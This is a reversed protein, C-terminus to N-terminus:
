IYLAQSLSYAAMSPNNIQIYEFEYIVKGTENYIRLINGHDDCQVRHIASEPADDNMKMTKTYGTPFGKSDFEWEYDAEWKNIMSGLDTMGSEHTPLGNEDFDITNNDIATNVIRSKITGSTYYTWTTDALGDGAQSTNKRSIALGDEITYEYNATASGGVNTTTTTLPYGDPTFDSCELVSESPNDPDDTTYFKLTTRITNGRDDYENISEQSKEGSESYVTYCSTVWISGTGAKGGNTTSAGNGCGSLSLVAVACLAALVIGLSFRKMLKEM